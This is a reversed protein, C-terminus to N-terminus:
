LVAIVFNVIASALIAVVLGVISYLITNKASTISSQDGNSLVYRLGGIIIMIVAVAGIIFILVNIIKTWISNPGFLKTDREKCIESGPLRECGRNFVDWPAAHAPQAVAVPMLLSGGLVALSGFLLGIKKFM